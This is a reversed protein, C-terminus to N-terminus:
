KYEDPDVTIEIWFQMWEISILENEYMYNIKDTADQYLENLADQINYNNTQWENKVCDDMEYTYFEGDDERVNIHVTTTINTKMDPQLYLKHSQKIFNYGNWNTTKYTKICLRTKTYTECIDGEAMFKNYGIDEIDPRCKQQIQKLTGSVLQLRGKEFACTWVSSNRKQPRRTCNPAVPNSFNLVSNPKSDFELSFKPLNIKTETLNLASNPLAPKCLDAPQNM